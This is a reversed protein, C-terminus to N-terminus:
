SALYPLLWGFILAFSSNLAIWGKLFRKSISFLFVFLLFNFALIISTFLANPSGLGTGPFNLSVWLYIVGIGAGILGWYLFIIGALLPFIATLSSYQLLPRLFRPPNQRLSPLMLAGICIFLTGMLFGSGMGGIIALLLAEGRM